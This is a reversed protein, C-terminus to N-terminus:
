KNLKTIPTHRKFIIKREQKIELKLTQKKGKNENKEKKFFLLL